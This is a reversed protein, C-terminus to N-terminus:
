RYILSVNGTQCRGGPNLMEFEDSSIMGPKLERNYFDIGDRDNFEIDFLETIPPETVIKSSVPDGKRSVLYREFKQLPRLLRNFIIPFPKNKEVEIPKTFIYKKESNICAGQLVFYLNDIGDDDPKRVIQDKKSFGINIVGKYNVLRLLVKEIRFAEKKEMKAGEFKAYIAFITGYLQSAYVFHYVPKKKKGQYSLDVSAILDLDHIPRM